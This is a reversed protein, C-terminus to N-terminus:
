KRFPQQSLNHAQSRLCKAATPTLFVGNHFFNVCVITNYEHFYSLIKEFRHSITLLNATNKRM